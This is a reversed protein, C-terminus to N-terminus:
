WDSKFRYFLLYNATESTDKPWQIQPANESKYIDIIDDTLLSMYFGQHVALPPPLKVDESSWLVDAVHLNENLRPNHLILQKKYGARRYWFSYLSEDFYFLHPVVFYQREVVDREFVDAEKASWLNEPVNHEGFDIRLLPEEGKDSLQYVINELPRTYYLEGRITTVTEPFSLELASIPSQFLSYKVEQFDSERIEVGHYSDEDLDEDSFLVVHESDPIKEINMFVKKMRTSNILDFDQLDYRFFRMKNRDNIVLHKKDTDVYFSELYEYEDPGSGTKNLQGQYAGTFDFRTVTKTQYADMLYLSSDYVKMVDVNGFYIGDPNKLPIIYATDIVQEFSYTDGVGTVRIQRLTEAPDSCNIVVLALTILTLYRM